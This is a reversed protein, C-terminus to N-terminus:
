FPPTIVLIFNFAKKYFVFFIDRRAGDNVVLWFRRQGIAVGKLYGFKFQM